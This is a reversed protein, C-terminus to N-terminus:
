RRGQRRRRRRRRESRVITAPAAAPSDGQAAPLASLGIRDLVRLLLGQRGGPLRRRRPCGRGDFPPGSSNLGRRQVEERVEYIAEVGDGSCSGAGAEGGLGSRAPSQRRRARCQRCRLGM